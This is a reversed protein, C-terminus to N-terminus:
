LNFYIIGIFSLIWGFIIVQLFRNKLLVATPSGSILWVFTLQLYRLVGLIVFFSTIYVHNNFRSIVEDSTCYMIYCVIVVTALSTIVVNLFELNYGNLNKRASVGTRVHNFVDDRRKAFALFLALVFTMLVIWHSLDTGSVVGGIILRIVFGVAIIFVDLISIHKLKVTYLINQVLYFCVLLFAYLNGIFVYFTVLGAILLIVILVIGEKISVRNSALPRNRKTPHLRDENIDLMDNFVYVASALLSFGFFALVLHLAVGPDDIQLSFFAPLLIFTNKVWQNPRMLQLYYRM